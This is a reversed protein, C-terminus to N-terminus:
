MTIKSLIGLAKNIARNHRIMSGIEDCIASRDDTQSAAILLELQRDQYGKLTVYYAPQVRDNEIHLLIRNPTIAFHNGKMNGFFDTEGCVLLNAGNSFEGKMHGSTLSYKKVRLFGFWGRSSLRNVAEETEKYSTENELGTEVMDGASATEHQDGTVGHHARCFQYLCNKLLRFDNSENIMHRNLKVGDECIFSLYYQNKYPTVREIYVFSLQKDVKNEYIKMYRYKGSHETVGIGGLSKTNYYLGCTLLNLLSM